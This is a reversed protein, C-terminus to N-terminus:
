MKLIRILFAPDIEYVSTTTQDTVTYNMSTVSATKGM